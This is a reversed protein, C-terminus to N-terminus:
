KKMLIETVGRATLIVGIIGPIALMGWSRVLAPAQIRQLFSRLAFQNLLWAVAGLGILEPGGSAFVAALGGITFGIVTLGLSVALVASRLVPHLRARSLRVSFGRGREYIQSTFLGMWLYLSSFTLVNLWVPGFLQYDFNAPDMLVYGFVLLLGVAFVASRRWGSWPLRDRFLVYLFMTAVGAGAALAGIFLTGELTIVGVRNGNETRLYRNRDDTLFGALRMALRSTIGALFGGLLGSLVIWAFMTMRAAATERLGAWRSRPAAAAVVAGTRGNLAPVHGNLSIAEARANDLAKAWIAAKLDDRLPATQDLQHLRQIAALSSHESEM